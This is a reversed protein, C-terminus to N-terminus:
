LMALVLVLWHHATTLVERLDPLGGPDIGMERTWAATDGALSEPIGLENGGWALATM